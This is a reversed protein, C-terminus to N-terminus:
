VDRGEIDRVRRQMEGSLLGDAAERSIAHVTFEGDETVNMTVTGPTLTISNALTTKGMAEKIDTRFKIVVPDIPMSPHLTRYILDVNAKVVELLLWPLYMSFRVIRAAEVKLSTGEPVFLRHSFLAVLLSSIIGTVIHFADFFGSLLIWFIFSVIATVIFGM